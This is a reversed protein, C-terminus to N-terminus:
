MHCQTTQATISRHKPAPPSGAGGGWGRRAGRGGPSGPADSDIPPFESFHEITHVKHRGQASRWTDAGIEGAEDNRVDFPQLQGGCFNIRPLSLAPCRHLPGRPCPRPLASKPLQPAVGGGTYCPFRLPQGAHSHARRALLCTQCPAPALAALFLGLGATARGDGRNSRGSAAGGM